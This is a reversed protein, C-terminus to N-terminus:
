HADTYNVTEDGVSLKSENFLYHAVRHMQNLKSLLKIADFISDMSLQVQQAIATAAQNFKNQLTQLNM